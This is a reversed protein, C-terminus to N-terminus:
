ILNKNDQNYKTILRRIDILERVIFQDDQKLLEKQYADRLLSKRVDFGRMLCDLRNYLCDYEYGRKMKGKLLQLENILIVTEVYEKKM